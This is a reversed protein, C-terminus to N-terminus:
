RQLRPLDFVSAFGRTPVTLLPSPHSCARRILAYPQPHRNGDDRQNRNRKVLKGAAGTSDLRM